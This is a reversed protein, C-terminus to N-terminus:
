VFAAKVVKKRPVRSDYTIEDCIKDTVYSKTTGNSDNDFIVSRLTCYQFRTLDCKTRKVHNRNVISKRKPYWLRMVHM